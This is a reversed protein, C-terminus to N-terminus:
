LFLEPEHRVASLNGILQQTFKYFTENNISKSNSPCKKICSCCKICKLNDINEFNNFDIAGMPCHKACIGCKLCSDATDPATMQIPTKEKYPFNGKVVLKSTLINENVAELKEKIKVGFKYATGLDNIDPRGTAVKSTYSHEAIFAGGAIGIFGNKEFTDKLELLSDEYDRNGYVVIFVAKTNNGKVKSFYDTLFRPVRGAYVPVGIIVLDNNDFVLEEQRNVPLTINYEKVTGGIGEAVKKVIKITNGTASFYLLNLQKDM